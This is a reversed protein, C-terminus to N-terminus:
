CVEEIVENLIKSLVENKLTETAKQESLGISIFSSMLEDKNKM